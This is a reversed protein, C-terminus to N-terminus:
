QCKDTEFHHCLKAFLGRGCGSGRTPRSGRPRAVRRPEVRGLCACEGHVPECPPCGVRNDAWGWGISRIQDSVPTPGPGVCLDSQRVAGSPSQKRASSSPISRDALTHEQRHEPPRNPCKSGVILLTGFQFPQLRAANSPLSHEHMASDHGQDKGSRRSGDGRASRGRSKSCSQVSSTSRM